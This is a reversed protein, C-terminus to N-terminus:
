RSDGLMALIAAANARTENATTPAEEKLEREELLEGPVDLLFRSPTRPVARGRVVRSKARSLHLRQRARTVGVYFLRREEEIDAAGPENVDTVRTELTRAHPLYGEECGILFVVDFELGKSGHLTSLTVLDGADEGEAEIDMTLTQLFAALGDAGKGDRQERRALTQLIGEVNGWRKAAADISGAASEIEARLGVREVLARAVASPLVKAGFLEKRAWAVLEALSRCGERAPSPLGDIAQEREVAQWLPWRREAAALALRELSTDGIGRPPTNVVRRLAIEDHPNLALKLYALVDKM